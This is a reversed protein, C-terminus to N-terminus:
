WRCWSKKPSAQVFVTRSRVTKIAEIMKLAVSDAGPVSLIAASLEAESVQSLFKAADISQVGESEM